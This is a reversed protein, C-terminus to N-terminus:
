NGKFYHHFRSDRPNVQPLPRGAILSVDHLEDLRGITRLPIVKGGGPFKSPYGTLSAM